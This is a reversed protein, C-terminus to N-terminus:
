ITFLEIHKMDDINHIDHLIGYGHHFSVIDILIPVEGQYKAYRKLCQRLTPKNM